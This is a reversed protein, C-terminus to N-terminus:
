LLLWTTSFVINQLDQKVVRDFFFNTVLLVFLKYVIICVQLGYIYETSTSFLCNDAFVWSRAKAQRSLGSVKFGAPFVWAVCEIWARMHRLM